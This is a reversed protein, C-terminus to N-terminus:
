RMRGERRTRNYTHGTRARCSMVLTSRCPQDLSPDEATVRSGDRPRVAIASRALIEGPSSPSVRQEREVVLLRWCRLVKCRSIAARHQAALRQLEAPTIRASDAGQRPMRWATGGVVLDEGVVMQGGPWGPWRGGPLSGPGSGWGLGVGAQDAPRLRPQRAVWGVCAPAMPAHPKHGRTAALPRGYRGPARPAGDARRRPQDAAPRGPRRAATAAAHADRDTAPLWLVNWQCEAQAAVSM